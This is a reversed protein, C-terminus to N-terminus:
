QYHTGQYEGAYIAPRERSADQQGQTWEEANLTARRGDDFRVVVLGSLPLHQTVECPVGGIEKRSGLVPLAKVLDDYVEVEYRLCCKLRGCVGSTKGPDLPLNQLRAMKVAVTPFLDLHQHCCLERGCTGMGSYIAAEDRVGIQHLEIRCRFITALDRVLIRFDVRHEASFHFTIKGKDFRWDAGLIKMPLQHEAVRRRCTTLANREESRLNGIVEWDADTVSREYRGYVEDWEERTLDGLTLRAAIIGWELGAEENKWIILERVQVPDAGGLVMWKERLMGTQVVLIPTTPPSGAPVQPQRLKRLSGKPM